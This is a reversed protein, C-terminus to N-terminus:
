RARQGGAAKCPPYRRGDDSACRGLAFAISGLARDQAPSAAESLLSAARLALRRVAEPEHGRCLEGVGFAAWEIM